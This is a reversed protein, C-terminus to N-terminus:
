WLPKTLFKFNAILYAFGFILHIFISIAVIVPGFLSGVMALILTLPTTHFYKVDEFDDIWAASWTLFLSSIFGPLFWVLFIMM